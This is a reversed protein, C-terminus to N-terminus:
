DKSKLYNYSAQQSGDLSAGPQNNNMYLTDNVGDIKRAKAKDNWQLNLVDIVTQKAEKDYIPFACEVRNTLNRTMWDASALYVKEQGDNGFVYIRAHEL